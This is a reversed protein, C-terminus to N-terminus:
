QVPAFKVADCFCTHIDTIYLLKLISLVFTIYLCRTFEINKSIWTVVLGALAPKLVAYSSIAVM